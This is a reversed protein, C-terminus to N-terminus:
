KESKETEKEELGETHKEAIHCLIEVLFHVRHYPEAVVPEAETPVRHASSCQPFCTWAM